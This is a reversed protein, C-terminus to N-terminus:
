FSTVLSLSPCYMTILPDIWSSYIVITFIYAGLMPAGCYMLCSSVALFPSISLLVIISPSQSVGSEGLCLDDM